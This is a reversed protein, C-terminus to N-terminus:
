FWEEKTMENSGCLFKNFKKLSIDIIININKNLKMIDRRQTSELNGNDLVM